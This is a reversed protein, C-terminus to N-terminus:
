LASFCHQGSESSSSLRDTQLSPLLKSVWCPCRLGGTSCCTSESRSATSPVSAKTAWFHLKVICGRRFVHEYALHHLLTGSLYLAIGLFILMMGHRKGSNAQMCLTTDFQKQSHFFVKRWARLCSSDCVPFPLIRSRHSGQVCSREDQMYSLLEATCSAYKKFNLGLIYQELLSLLSM